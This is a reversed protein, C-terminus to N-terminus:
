EPTRDFVIKRIHIVSEGLSQLYVGPDAFFVREERIAGSADDVFKVKVWELTAYESTIEAGTVTEISVVPDFLCRYSGRTEYSVIEISRVWSLPVSRSVSIPDYDVPWENVNQPIAEAGEKISFILSILDQFELKEGSEFFLIGSLGTAEPESTECGASWVLTILLLIHLMSKTFTSMM